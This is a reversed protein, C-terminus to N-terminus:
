DRNPRTPGDAISEGIGMVVSACVIAPVPHWDLHEVVLVAAAMGSLSVFRGGREWWPSM